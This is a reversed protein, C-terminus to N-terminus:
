SIEVPIKDFPTGIYLSKISYMVSCKSSLDHENYTLDDVIDVFHREYPTTNTGLKYLALQKKTPLTAEKICRNTMLSTAIYPVITYIATYIPTGTHGIYLTNNSYLYFSDISNNYLIDEFM